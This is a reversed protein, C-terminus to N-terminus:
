TRGLVELGAGTLAEVLGAQQGFQVLLEVVGTPRGPLHELRIDEVNVGAGAARALVEVLAGPQDPIRVAVVGVDGDLVDRKVPVRARGANGRVLLRRVAATAQADAPEVALRALAAAADQLDAALAAALPAVQGANTALIDVWLDPNSAAIRTSDHLGPGSVSPAAEDGDLLRAALASAAVQPLHSSLAVARDHQVASMTLPQAGCAAALELVVSRAPQSTAPSPCVVWPRGAFLESTAAGPGTVERGALPHGGCIGSGDIGLDELEAQVRAQCSAVHTLVAAAAGAYLDALVAATRAPPVAVVACDVTEAGDWATGAGRDAAQQVRAPDVDTLLVRREGHLALGISTGILGTGVM